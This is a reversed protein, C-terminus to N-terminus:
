LLQKTMVLADETPARYFNKRVGVAGFGYREYLAIAAANGVRVELSLEAIGEEAAYAHLACLLSAAVGMRRYKETVALNLIQLEDLARACGIYGALEGRADLSVFSPYDPTCLLSLSQESWPESFIERELSAVPLIHRESFREICFDNM